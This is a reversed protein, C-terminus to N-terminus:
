RARRVSLRDVRVGQDAPEGLRSWTPADLRVALAEREALAVQFTYPRITRDVAFRHEAGGNARVVVDSRERTSPFPVGMELTVDYTGAGTTPVLRLWARHRSWRHEGPPPTDGPPEYRAWELRHASLMPDLGRPHLFGRVAGYDNRALLVEDAVPPPLERWATELVIWPDQDWSARDLFALGREDMPDLRALGANPRLNAFNALGAAQRYAALAENTRGALLERRGLDAWPRPSRPGPSVVARVGDVVYPKVSMLSVFAGAALGIWLRRRREGSTFAV